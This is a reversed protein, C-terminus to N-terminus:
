VNFQIKYLDKYKKSTKLLDEHKGIQLITGGDLVIIKDAKLITSLRHAIAVVTRGVTLQELALQIQSESASDLASTAEDLLLIQANKLLARAISIRQQQGGSLKCGKDGVVTEYGHQQALIFEHAYAQKAATVVEERTASLRGYAINNFITDHFLFTEQSVIGINDRLSDQALRRIDQGDVRVCGQDPDYFRMILSLLTSKGAGSAGVLAHYKGEEFNLNINELAPIGERYCFTVNQFEIDGQCLQLM